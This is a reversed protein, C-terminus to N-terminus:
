RGRPDGYLDLLRVRASQLREYLVHTVRQLVESGADPHEDLAARLSAGDVVAATVDEVVRGDFFWRHPPVLWSWGAVGGGAVSDLLHAPRGPAHTELGVRGRDLLFFRDAVEGERFLYEGVPFDRVTAAGDVLDVTTAPLGALFPHGALLQATTTM